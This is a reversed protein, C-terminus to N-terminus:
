NHHCFLLDLLYHYISITMFSFHHYHGNRPTLPPTNYPTLVPISDKPNPFIARIPLIKTVDRCYLNKFLYVAVIIVYLSVVHYTSSNSPTSFSKSNKRWFFLFFYFFIFFFIFFFHPM